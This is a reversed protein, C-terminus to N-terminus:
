HKRSVLITGDEWKGDDALLNKIKVNVDDDLSLYPNDKDKPHM